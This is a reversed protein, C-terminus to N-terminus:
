RNGIKKCRAADRVRRIELIINQLPFSVGEARERHIELTEEEKEGRERERQKEIKKRSICM